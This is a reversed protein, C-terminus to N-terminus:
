RNMIGAACWCIIGGLWLDTSHFSFLGVMIFGVSTIALAEKSPIIWRMLENM